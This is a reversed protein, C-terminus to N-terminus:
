TAGQPKTKELWLLPAALLSINPHLDSEAEEAWCQPPPGLFLLSSSEPCWDSGSMGSLVRAETEGDASPCTVLVQNTSCSPNLHPGREDTCLLCGVVARGM